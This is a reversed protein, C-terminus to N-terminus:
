LEREFRYVCSPESVKRTIKDPSVGDLFQEFLDDHAGFPEGRCKKAFDLGYIECSYTGDELQILKTCPNYPDDPPQGAPWCPRDPYKAFRRHAWQKCCEGCRICPADPNVPILRICYLFFTYLELRSFIGANILDRPSQHPHAKKIEDLIKCSHKKSVSLYYYQCPPNSPGWKSPVIKANPILSQEGTKCTEDPRM